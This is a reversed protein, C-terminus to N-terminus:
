VSSVVIFRKARLASVPLRMCKPLLFHRGALIDLMAEGVMGTAGVLWM